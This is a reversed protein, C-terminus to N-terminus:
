SEDEGAFRVALRRVDQAAESLLELGVAASLWVAAGVAGAILWVLALAVDSGIEVFFGLVGGLASFVSAFKLVVSCLGVWSHADSRGPVQGAQAAAATSEEDVAVDGRVHRNINELFPEAKERIEPNSRQQILEVLRQFEALRVDDKPVPRAWEAYLITLAQEFKAQEIEREAREFPGRKARM